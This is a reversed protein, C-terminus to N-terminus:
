PLPRNEALYLEYWEDHGLEITDAACLERLHSVSTTGAIAQMHAPHRLIWAAAVASTSVNYKEAYKRLVANLKPYEPHDLFLGKVFDVNLISWCQILIDNLRCYNLIDGDRNVAYPDDMNVHIGEDIMGAHALSFQLQNIIMKEGTHKELLAIQYPNMNSVGFYRVKGSKKLTEFAGAVEEMDMLADPRHLLLIDLHDTHLRELIKETSSVIYDKSADYCIGPRICTKSQLVIRDRLSPDKRLAAGFLQESKGGGYIDAHDFLNIGEDLAAKILTDVEAESKGAIRMCGLAIRSVELDTNQIQYTKM